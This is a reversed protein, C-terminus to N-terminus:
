LLIRRWHDYSKRMLKKIDQRNIGSLNPGQFNFLFDSMVIFSVFYIEKKMKTKYGHLVTSSHKM